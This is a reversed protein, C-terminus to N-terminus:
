DSLEKGEDDRGMFYEESLVMAESGLRMYHEDAWEDEIRPLNAPDVVNRAENHSMGGAMMFNTIANLVEYMTFLNERKLVYRYPVISESDDDLVGQLPRLIESNIIEEIKTQWPYITNLITTVHGQASNSYKADNNLLESPSVNLLSPAHNMGIEKMFKQYDFEKNELDWREVEIKGFTILPKGWNNKGLYNARYQSLFVNADILTSGKGLKVHLSHRIENTFKKQNQNLVNIIFKTMEQNYEFAAHGYADGKDSYKLHVVEDLGLKDEEEIEEEKVNKKREVKAYGTKKIVGRKFEDQDILVVMNAPDVTYIEALHDEKKNLVKEIFGDGTMISNRMTAKLVEIMSTENVNAKKMFREIRQKLKLDEKQGDFLRLEGERSFCSDVIYNIAQPALPLESAWFRLTELDVLKKKLQPSKKYITAYPLSWESVLSKNLRGVKDSRYEKHIKEVEKNIYNVLEQNRKYKTTIVIPGIQM